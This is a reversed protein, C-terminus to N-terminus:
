NKRKTMSSQMFIALSKTLNEYRCRFVRKRAEESMVAINAQTKMYRQLKNPKLSEEAFEKFCVVCIGKGSVDAIGYKDLFLTNISRKQKTSAKTPTKFFKEMIALFCNKKIFVNRSTKNCLCM